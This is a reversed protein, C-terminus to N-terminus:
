NSRVKILLLVLSQVLISYTKHRHELNKGICNNSWIVCTNEKKFSLTTILILIKTKLVKWRNCHVQHFIWISPWLPCVQFLFLWLFIILYALYVKKLPHICVTIYSKEKQDKASCSFPHFRLCLLTKKPMFFRDLLEGLYIMFDKDELCVKCAMLLIYM